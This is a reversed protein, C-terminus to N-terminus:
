FLMLCFIVLRVVPICSTILSLAVFFKLKNSDSLSNYIDKSNNNSNTIDFLKDTRITFLLFLIIFYVVVSELYFSIM